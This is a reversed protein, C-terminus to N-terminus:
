HSDQNKPHLETDMSVQFKDSPKQWRSQYGM